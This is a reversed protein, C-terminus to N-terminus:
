QHISSLVFLDADRYCAAPDNVYGPLLVSDSIALREAQARLNAELPGEGFIVLRALRRARLLAFAEILVAQDKVPVLRGATVIMPSNGMAALEAPWSYKATGDGELPGPLPNNIVAIRDRPFGRAQLDRGIGQSVAIAKTARRAVLKSLVVALKAGFDESPLDAAAHFSPFFRAHSRSLGLAIMTVLNAFEPASFVAHPKHRAFFRASRAIGRLTAPKGYGEGHIPMDLSVLEVQSSLLARNPGEANWTFVTVNHGRQEQQLAGAKDRLNALATAASTGTPSANAGDARIADYNAQAEILRAQAEVLQANLANMTQTSVLEGNGSAALNNQRRFTQVREEAIQVDRKLQELREDLSAAARAAGDAEASALEARFSRILADSILIAKDTTEASVMLTAVFSKEDAVASVRQTLNRLAIVEPALKAGSTEGGPLGPLSFGPNPDYFETDEVLHLDEV